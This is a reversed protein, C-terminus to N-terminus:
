YYTTPQIAQLEWHDMVMSAALPGTSSEKGRTRQVAKHSTDAKKEAWVMSIFVDQDRHSMGWLIINYNYATSLCIKIDV